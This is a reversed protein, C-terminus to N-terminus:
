CGNDLRGSRTLGIVNFPMWSNTKQEFHPLFRRKTLCEHVLSGPQSNLDGCFVIPIYSWDDPCNDMLYSFMRIMLYHAQCLKVFEFEPNWYLHTTCVLLPQGTAIQEFLAMVGENNRSLVEFGGASLEVLDVVEEPLLLDWTDLKYFICSRLSWITKLVGYDDNLVQEAIFDSDVEQLCIFDVGESAYESLIQRQLERREGRSCKVYPHNRVCRDALVNWSIIKFSPESSVASM